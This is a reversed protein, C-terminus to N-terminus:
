ILGVHRNIDFREQPPSPCYRIAATASDLAVEGGVRVAKWWYLARFDLMGDAILINYFLYDVDYRYSRPLLGDKMLHYFFDHNGSARQSEKTNIAPFNADFLFGAYITYEGTAYFIGYDTQITLPPKFPAIGHYPAHVVFKEALRYALQNM